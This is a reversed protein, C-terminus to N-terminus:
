ACGACSFCSGLLGMFFIFSVFGIVAKGVYTACGDEDQQKREERIIIKEEKVIVQPQVQQRLNANYYPNPKMCYACHEWLASISKGCNPCIPGSNQVVSTSVASVSPKSLDVGGAEMDVANRTGCKPCFDSDDPIEKGCKRCFM